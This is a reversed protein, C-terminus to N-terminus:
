ESSTTYSTSVLNASETATSFGRSLLHRCASRGLVVPGRRCHRSAPHTAAVGNTAPRRPVPPSTPQCPLSAATQGGVGRSPTQSPPAARCRHWTAVRPPSTTPLTGPAATTSPRPAPVWAGVRPPVTPNNTHPDRVTSAQRRHRRKPPPLFRGGSAAGAVVPWGPTPLPRTPPLKASTAGGVRGPPAAPPGSTQEGAPAAPRCCGSAGNAQPPRKSLAAPQGTAPHSPHGRPPLVPDAGAALLPVAAGAPAVGRARPM